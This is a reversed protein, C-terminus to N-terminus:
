SAKRTPSRSSSAGSGPLASRSSSAHAGRPALHPHLNAADRPGLVRRERALEAGVQQPDVEPRARRAGDRQRLRALHRIRRAAARQEDADEHVLPRRADRLRHRGGAEVEHLQVAVLLRLQEALERACPNRRALGDAGEADARSEIRDRSRRRPLLAPTEQEVGRARAHVAAGARLPGPAADGGRYRGARGCAGRAAHQDGATDCGTAKARKEGSGIVPSRTRRTPRAVQDKLTPRAARPSRRRSPRRSRGRGCPRPSAARGTRPPGRHRSASAPRVRAAVEPGEAAAVDGLRQHRREGLQRLGVVLEGRAAAEAALEVLQEGVVGAARRRQVEGGVQGGLEAARADVELALVQQVGARVLDVVGDALAQEGAVHALLPHDGLGAGALVTDGGGGGRRQQAEVARDEHAFLVHAALPEVDAAHLQEAGRHHRDVGAAARELVGDVLRQAVPDGVHAGGVVHEARHEAGVGVRPHHAVEVAEDALLRSPLELAGGAARRGVEGDGADAAAAVGDAQEAGEEVVAGHPQDADLRPAAAAREALVGRAELAAAEAHQVARAGHHQLVAVPLYRCRVRHRGAEVVRRHPRLM